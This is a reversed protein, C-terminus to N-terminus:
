KQTFCLDKTLTSVISPVQKKGTWALSNANSEFEYAVEHNVITLLRVFEMEFVNKQMTKHLAQVFWSGKTANRWAFYGPVTSYAYLFDAEKPIRFMSKSPEDVIADHAVVGEDLQHGRCAQIIFIKPKGALSSCSKIPEIFKDVTITDDVGYLLSNDGHTLVAVGFSDCDSHNRGAASIMLRLMQTATQNDHRSVEFGLEKFDTELRTADIDTGSRDDTGTSSNFTKNNIIIFQGRRPNDMRYRLSDGRAQSTVDSVGTQGHRDPTTQGFPADRVGIADVVDQGADLSM